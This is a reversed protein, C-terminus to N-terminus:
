RAPQGPTTAQPAAGPIQALLIDDNHVHDAFDISTGEYPGGCIDVRVTSRGSPEGVDGVALRVLGEGVRSRPLDGNGGHGTASIPRGETPTGGTRREVTRQEAPTLQRVPLRLRTCGEEEAFRDINLLAGNAGMWDNLADTAEVGEARDAAGQKNATAGAILAVVAVGGFVILRTKRSM